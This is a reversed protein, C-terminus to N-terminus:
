YRTLRKKRPARRDAAHEGFSYVHPLGILVSATLVGVGFSSNLTSASAPALRYLVTGTATWTARLCGSPRMTQVRGVVDCITQVNHQDTGAGVLSHPHVATTVMDAHANPVVSVGNDHDHNRHNHHTLSCMHKALLRDERM